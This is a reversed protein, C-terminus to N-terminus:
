CPGFSWFTYSAELSCAVRLLPVWPAILYRDRGCSSGAIGGCSVDSSNCQKDVKGSGHGSALIM